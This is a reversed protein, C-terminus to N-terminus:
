RSVNITVVSWSQRNEVDKFNYWIKDQGNFGSKATYRLKNNVLAVRGGKQSWPSPANLRRGNGVDNALVDFTKAVGTRASYTDPRGVPFPNNAGTGGTVNITVTGWASRNQVDKFSYFVKDQGTFSSKATYRIKNSVLAVRGGKQSWPNLASLVRGNGVDNNLVDLTKAVGATAAYTDPRAVPSPNAGANNGSVTITVVSSLTRGRNDKAIYWIKDTGNFGPKATYNIKNNALSVRGGKQSWANPANLTLGAGTDNALVDIVIRSGSATVNDPRGVPAPNTNGGSPIPTANSVRFAPMARPSSQSWQRQLLSKMRNIRASQNANGILNNSQRPDVTLNYLDTPVSNTTMLLTWDGESDKQRLVYTTLNTRSNEGSQMLGFNRLPRNENQIGFLIPLLTTSDMAQNDPMNQRTLDFLSAALDRNIIFQNTVSGPRIRSGAATGNGWKAIMPVRHGGEYASGKKGRLGGAPRHGAAAEERSQSLAGNDSTFVILTNNTLGERDLRKLLRGVQIDLEKIMDTKANLTTGRVNQGDLTNPPTHPLHIAQSAYYMFFPQNSGSSRNRAAHRGIYEAATKSLREGIISTNWTPDRLRDSVGLTDDLIVSKAGNSLNTTGPNYPVMKSGTAPNLPAYKDNEFFAYPPAQIGSHLVYSYDFGHERMGDTIPKSFDAKDYNTAIKGDAKRMDGGFSAKGFFSTRYGAQKMVDGMTTHRRVASFASSSKLRWTGTARGNRVPNQGTIMSFRTPACLASPSHADTFSMGQNALRDLNPTPIVPTNGTQRKHYSGLDGYGIDDALIILVNPSASYVAASATVASLGLSMAFILSAKM